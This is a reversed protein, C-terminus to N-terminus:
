VVKTLIAWLQTIIGFFNELEVSVEPAPRLGAQRQRAELARLKFAFGQLEPHTQLAAGIAQQLTLPRLSSDAAHVSPALLVLSFCCARLARALSLNM